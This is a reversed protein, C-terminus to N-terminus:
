SSSSVFTLNPGTTLSLYKLEHFFYTGLFIMRFIIQFCFSEDEDDFLHKIENIIEVSNRKVCGWEGEHILQRSM